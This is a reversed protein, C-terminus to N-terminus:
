ALVVGLDRLYDLGSSRRAAVLADAIADVAQEYNRGELKSDKADEKLMSWRDTVIHLLEHVLTQEADFPDRWVTGADMSDMVTVVSRRYVNRESYGINESNLPSEYYRKIRVQIHWDAIGLVPQWYELLKELQSQNLHVSIPQYRM